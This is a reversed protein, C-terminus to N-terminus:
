TALDRQAAIRRKTEVRNRVFVASCTVAAVFAISLPFAAAFTGFRAARSTNEDTILDTALFPLVIIMIAAAMPAYIFAMSHDDIITEIALLLAMTVLLVGLTIIM